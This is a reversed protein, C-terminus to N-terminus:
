SGNNAYEKESVDVWVKGFAKAIEALVARKQKTALSVTKVNYRRAASMVKEPKHCEYAFVLLLDAGGNKISIEVHEGERSEWVIKRPLLIRELMDYLQQSQSRNPYGGYMLIRKGSVAEILGCRKAALTLLQEESPTGPEASSVKKLAEATLPAVDQPFQARADRVAKLEQQEGILQADLKDLEEDRVEIELEAGATLDDLASIASRYKQQDMFPALESMEKRKQEHQEIRLRYGVVEKDLEERRKLQAAITGEKAKIEANLRHVEGSSRRSKASNILADIEALEM